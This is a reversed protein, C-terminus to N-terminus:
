AVAYIVHAGEPTYVVPAGKGADLLRRLAGADGASLAAREEGSLAYGDLFSPDTSLRDELRPDRALDSLVTKLANM